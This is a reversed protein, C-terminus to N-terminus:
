KLKQLCHTISNIIVFSLHNARRRRTKQSGNFSKSSYRAAKERAGTRPLPTLATVGPDRQSRSSVVRREADRERLGFTSSLWKNGCGM